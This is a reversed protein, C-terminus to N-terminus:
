STPQAPAAQRLHAGFAELGEVWIVTADALQQVPQGSVFLVDFQAFVVPAGGVDSRFAKLFRKDRNWANIVDDGVGTGDFVTNFQMDGCRGDPECGYFFVFWVLGGEDVRFFVDGDQRTVEGARAGAAVLWERVSEPTLGVFAPAQAAADQASAAGPAALTLTLAAAAALSFTRIM